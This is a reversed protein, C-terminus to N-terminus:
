GKNSLPFPEKESLGARIKNVLYARGLTHDLSARNGMKYSNKCKKTSEWKYHWVMLETLVPDM